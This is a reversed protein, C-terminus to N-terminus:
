IKNKKFWNILRYAVELAVPLTQITLFVKTKNVQSTVPHVVDNRQVRVMEFLSLLHETSGQHMSYPMTKAKILTDMITQITSFIRPLNPRDLLQTVDTKRKQDTEANGISELLLLIAKEAAAGFMVASAFFLRQKFCNLGEIAYQKIVPDIKSVISEITKGYGEPDYYAPGVEDVITRGFSTLRLWPWGMNSTDKGITLIRDIIFDWIIEDVTLEDIPNLRKQEYYMFNISNKLCEEKTPFLNKQALLNQVETIIEHQSNPNKKLAEVTLQRLVNHDIM